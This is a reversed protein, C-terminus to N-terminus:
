FSIITISDDPLEDITRGTIQEIFSNGLFRSFSPDLIIYGQNAEMMGELQEIDSLLISITYKYRQVNKNDTYSDLRIVSENPMLWYDTRKLYFSSVVPNNSIIKDADNLNLNHISDYAIVAKNELVNLDLNVIFVVCLSIVLAYIVRRNTVNKLVNILFVIILIPLLHYIYRIRYSPFNAYILIEILVLPMVINLTLLFSANLKFNGAFM